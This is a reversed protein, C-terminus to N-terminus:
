HQFLSQRILADDFGKGKLFRYLKEKVKIANFDQTRCKKEIWRRILELQEEDSFKALDILDPAKSKLKLAIMLPGWGKNKERKVFLEGERKDDLYGLRECERLLEDIARQDIKRRKLRETLELKMYGRLSLLKYVI